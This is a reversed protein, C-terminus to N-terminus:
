YSCAHCLYIETLISRKWSLFARSVGDGGGRAPEETLVTPPPQVQLAEPNRRCWAQSRRVLRQRHAWWVEFPQDFICLGDQDDGGGGGGGSHDAAAPPHSVAAAGSTEHLLAASGSNLPIAADPDQDRGAAFPQRISARHSTFPPCPADDLGQDQEGGLAGRIRADVVTPQAGTFCGAEDWLGPASRGGSWPVVQGATEM